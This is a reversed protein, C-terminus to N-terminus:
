TELNKCDNKLKKKEQTKIKVACILQRCRLFFYGKYLEKKKQIGNHIM